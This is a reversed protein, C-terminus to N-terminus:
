SHGASESTGLTAVLLALEALLREYQRRSIRRGFYICEDFTTLLDGVRCDNEHHMTPESKGGNTRCTITAGCERCELRVFGAVTSARLLQAGPQVLLPIGLSTAVTAATELDRVVDEPRESEIRLGDKGQRHIKM